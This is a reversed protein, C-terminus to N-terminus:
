MRRFMPRLIHAAAHSFWCKPNGVLDSVFLGTYDYFCPLLKSNRSSFLSQVIRTAFVFASILKVNVAFSIRRRKNKCVLCFVPKRICRCINKKEPTNLLSGAGDTTAHHFLSTQRYFQYATINLENQTM